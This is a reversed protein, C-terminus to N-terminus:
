YNLFRTRPTLISSSYDGRQAPALGQYEQLWNKKSLFAGFDIDPIIGATAQQALLGEYENYIDNFRPTYYRKMPDPLGMMVKAYVAQPNSKLYQNLFDTSPM